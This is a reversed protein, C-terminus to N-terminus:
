LVYDLVDCGNLDRKSFDAYYPDEKLEKLLDANGMFAAAMLATRGKDDKENVNVGNKLLQRALMERGELIAAILRPAGDKRAEHSKNKFVSHALSAFLDRME